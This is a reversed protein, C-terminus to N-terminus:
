QANKSIGTNEALCQSRLDVLDSLTSLWSGRFHGAQEHLEKVLRGPAEDDVDAADVLGGEDSPPISAAAGLVATLKGKLLWWEAM